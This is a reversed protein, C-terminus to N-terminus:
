KTGSALVRSWLAGRAPLASVGLRTAGAPPLPRLPLVPHLPQEADRRHDHTVVFGQSCRPGGPLGGRVSMGVEAWLRRMQM